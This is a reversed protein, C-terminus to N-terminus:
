SRSRSRSRSRSGKTKSPDQVSISQSFPNREKEKKKKKKKKKKRNKKRNFIKLPAALDRSPSFTLDTIQTAPPHAPPPTALSSTTFFLSSIHFCLTWEERMAPWSAAFCRASYSLCEMGKTM